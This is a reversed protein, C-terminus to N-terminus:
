PDRNFPSGMTVTQIQWEGKQQETQQGRETYVPPWKSVPPSRLLPWGQGRGGRGRDERWGQGRGRHAWRHGSAVLGLQLEDSGLLFSATDPFTPSFQGLIASNSKAPIDSEEEVWESTKTCWKHVLLGNWSQHQASTSVETKSEVSLQCIFPQWIWKGPAALRNKLTSFIVVSAMFVM